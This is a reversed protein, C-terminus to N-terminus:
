GMGFEDLNTKGAVIAGAAKLREVVTASFPSRFAQLTESACTTPQHTTCINDKIAVLQGDITSLPSGALDDSDNFAANLWCSPSGGNRHREDAAWSHELVSEANSTSPVFAGLHQYELQNKLCQKAQQGIHGLSM